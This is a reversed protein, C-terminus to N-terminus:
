DAETSHVWIERGNDTHLARIRKDGLIRAEYVTDESVVPRSLVQGEDDNSWVPFGDSTDLAYLVGNQSGVFLLAGDSSLTPGARVPDPRDETTTLETNWIERGTDASLAYVHGNVDAAYVVGDAAAPGGWFWNEGSFRWIEEGTAADIAYLRDDFAGIYLRGDMLAPTSAFAGPARFDWAVAGTSLQLAYLHRDMSGIYVMEDVILPTAWVRHGTKFTWELDGTEVDLAYVNGDGNGIVFMGGDESLAGGEVYQGMADDFSWLDRGEEDLGWIINRAQSFLGAAPSESTAIVYGEGVAPATYFLGARAEGPDRPFSWL